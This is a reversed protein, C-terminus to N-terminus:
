LEHIVIEDVVVYDDTTEVVLVETGVPLEQQGRRTKAPEEVYVGGKSVFQVNGLGDPPIRLTVEARLGVYSTHSRLDHGQQSKLFPLLWIAVPVYFALAGLGSILFLVIGAGGYATTAWGISGFGVLGAAVAKVSLWEFPSTSDADVDLDVGGDIDLDADSDTDFLVSYGLVVLGIIGIAVFSGPPM